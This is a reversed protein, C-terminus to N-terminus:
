RPRSALVVVGHSIGSSRCWALADPSSHDDYADPRRSFYKAIGEQLGCPRATGRAMGLAVHTLEHALTDMWPYGANMSRFTVTTVRGWNAITVMGTTRLAEELQACGILPDDEAKSTAENPDRLMGRREFERLVRAQVRRTEQAIESRTPARTNSSVARSGDLMLLHAPEATLIRLQRPRRLIDLLIVLAGHDALALL